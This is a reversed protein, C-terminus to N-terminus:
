IDLKRKLLYKPAPAEYVKKARKPDAAFGAFKGVERRWLSARFQSMGDEILCQYMFDDALYRLSGAILKMRMLQYLADHACPGRMANVTDITPGSAGDWAYGSKVTLVGSTTLEIFQTKIDVLPFIKTYFIEDEALQYKYGKRYKM